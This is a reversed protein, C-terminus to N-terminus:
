VKECFSSVRRVGTKLKFLNVSQIKGHTHTSTADDKMTRREFCRALRKVLKETRARSRSLNAEYVKQVAGFTSQHKCTQRSDPNDRCVSM